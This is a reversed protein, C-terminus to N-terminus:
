YTFGAIKDFVSILDGVDGGDMSNVDSWPIIHSLDQNLTVTGVSNVCVIIEHVIDLVFHEIAEVGCSTQVVPDLVDWCGVRLCFNIAISVPNHNDSMVIRDLVWTLVSVVTEIGDEGEQSCRWSHNLDVFEINVLDFTFIINIQDFHKNRGVDGLDHHYRLVEIALGIQSDFMNVVRLLGGVMEVKVVRM